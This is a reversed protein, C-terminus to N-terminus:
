HILTHATCGRGVGEGIIDKVFGWRRVAAVVGDIFTVVERGVDGGLHRRRM